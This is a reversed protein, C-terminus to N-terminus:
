MRKNDVRGCTVCFRAGGNFLFAIVKNIVQKLGCISDRANELTTANSIEAEETADM